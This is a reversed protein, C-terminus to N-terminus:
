AIGERERFALLRDGLRALREQVINDRKRLMAQGLLPHLIDLRIEM